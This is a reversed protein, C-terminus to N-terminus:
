RSACAEPRIPTQATGFVQQSGATAENLRDVKTSDNEVGSKHLSILLRRLRDKAVKTQQFRTLSSKSFDLVEYVITPYKSDHMVGHQASHKAYIEIWFDVKERLRGSAPIKFEPHLEAVRANAGDSHLAKLIICLFLLLRM